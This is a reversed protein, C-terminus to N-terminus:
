EGWNRVDGRVAQHCSFLPDESKGSAEVQKMMERGYEQYEEVEGNKLEAVLSLLDYM